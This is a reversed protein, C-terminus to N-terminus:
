ELALFARTPMARVRAASPALYPSFAFTMAGIAHDRMVSSM